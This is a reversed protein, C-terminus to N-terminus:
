RRWYNPIRMSIFNGNGVTVRGVFHNSIILIIQVGKQYHNSTTKLLNQKKAVNQVGEMINKVYNKGNMLLIHGLQMEKGQMDGRRLILWINQIIKLGNAIVKMLLLVVEGLPNNKQNGTKKEIEQIVRCQAIIDKKEVQKVKVKGSYKEVTTAFLTCDQKQGNLNNEQIIKM